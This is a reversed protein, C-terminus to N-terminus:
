TYRGLESICKKQLDFGDLECHPWVKRFDFDFKLEGVIERTKKGKYCSDMILDISFM